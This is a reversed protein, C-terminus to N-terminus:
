EDWFKIELVRVQRDDERIVFLIAVPPRVVFRTQNAAGRAEGISGPSQALLSDIENVAVTIENRIAPNDLWLEAL